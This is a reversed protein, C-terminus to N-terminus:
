SKPGGVNSDEHMCLEPPFPEGDTWVAGDAFVEKKWIPITKKLADILFRSADMAAARHESAVAILVSTEGIEIKGLRHVIRIERVAFKKLADAALQEMQKAAMEEYASYELHVTQRGRTNNRVIGDFVSIAGDTPDKLEELVRALDIKNRVLACRPAGGSVPPLVGIEDGECLERSPDGEFDLNVSYAISNKWAAITPHNASLMEVLKGLDSGPPLEIQERSAGAKERLAGFYLVSVKM